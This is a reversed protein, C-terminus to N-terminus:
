PESREARRPVTGIWGWSRLRAAHARREDEDILLQPAGHERLKAAREVHRVMVERWHARNKKDDALVTM